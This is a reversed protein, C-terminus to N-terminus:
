LTPEPFYPFTNRAPKDNANVNDTVLGPATVPGGLATGFGAGLYKDVVDDNMLKRGGYGTNNPALVQTLFGVNAANAATSATVGAARAPYVRLKDGPNGGFVGILAAAVTRGYQPSRGAVNTLFWEVDDTFHVPDRHPNFSDHASHERKELFAEAFLPNALREVQVFTRNPNTAFTSDAASYVPEKGPDTMGEERDCAAGTAAVALVALTTLSRKPSWM